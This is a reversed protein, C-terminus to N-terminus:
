ESDAVELTLKDVPVNSKGVFTEIEGSSVFVVAIDALRGDELSAVADVRVDDSIQLAEETVLVLGCYKDYVFDFPITSISSTHRIRVQAGTIEVTCQLQTVKQIQVLSEGFFAMSVRFGDSDTGIVSVFERQKGDKQFGRRNLDGDLRVRVMFRRSTSEVKQLSLAKGAM